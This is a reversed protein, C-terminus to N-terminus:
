PKDLIFELWQTPDALIPVLEEFETTSALVLTHFVFLKNTTSADIIGPCGM